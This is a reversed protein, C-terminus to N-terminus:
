PFETDHIAEVLEFPIELDNLVKTSAERKDERIKLNILYIGGFYNHWSM